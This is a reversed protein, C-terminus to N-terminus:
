TARLLKLIGTVMTYNTTKGYTHIEQITNLWNKLFVINLKMEKRNVNWSKQFERETSLLTNLQYECNQCLVPIRRIFQKKVEYSFKQAEASFISKNKCKVCLYSINEYSTAKSDYHGGCSRQSSKSWQAREILVSELVVGKSLV